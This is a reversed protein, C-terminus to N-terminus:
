CERWGSFESASVPFFQVRSGATLRVPPNDAPDFLRIPTRGIIHWGGPSNLPYIGTQNGAIGVGGAIVPAPQEKRPISLRPDTTGLYPFGPLFGMMYIHYVPATHLAIVEEQRLQKERSVRELDPAYTQDYCVPIRIVPGPVDLEPEKANTEFWALELKAKLYSYADSSSEGSTRLSVPDFFISVSGYSVIIDILGPFPHAELWKQITTARKNVQIDIINGLDLTIASDGLSFISIGTPLNV